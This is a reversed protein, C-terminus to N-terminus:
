KVHSRIAKILHNAGGAVLNEYYNFFREDSEYMDAMALHYNSDYAPYFLNLWEKHLRFVKEEVVENTEDGENEVLLKLNKVLEGEIDRAQALDLSERLYANARDISEDGYKARIEQGYRDENEKILKNVLNFNEENVERDGIIQEKLSAIVQDLNQRQKLLEEYQDLFIQKRGYAEKGDILEKIQALSFHMARYLAIQYIRDLDSKDYERYDNEENRRPNLLGLKEYYRLGRESVQTMKSVEKINM